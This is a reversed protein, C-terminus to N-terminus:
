SGVGLVRRRQTRFKANVQGLVYPIFTPGAARLIGFAWTGYTGVKPGILAAAYNALATLLTSSLNGDANHQGETFGGIYKRGVGRSVGTKFSVLAALQRALSDTTTEGGVTLTPWAIPEMPTNDTLNFGDIEIYQMGVDLYPNIPTHATELEAAIDALFQADTIPAGVSTAYVHYVNFHDGIAGFRMKAVVRCIDDQSVAM